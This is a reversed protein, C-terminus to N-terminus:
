RVIHVTEVHCCCSAKIMDQHSLWKPKKKYLLLTEQSIMESNITQICFWEDRLGWKMVPDIWLRRDIPYSHARYSPIPGNEDKQPPIDVIMLYSFLNYIYGKEFSCDIDTELSNYENSFHLLVYISIHFWLGMWM